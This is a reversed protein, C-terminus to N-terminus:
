RVNRHRFAHALPPPSLAYTCRVDFRGPVFRMADLRREPSDLTHDAHGPFPRVHSIEVSFKRDDFLDPTEKVALPGGVGEGGHPLGEM